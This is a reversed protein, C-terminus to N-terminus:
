ERRKGMIFYVVTPVAIAMMVVLAQFGPAKPTDPEQEKYDVDAYGTYTPDHEIRHGQWGPFSTAYWFPPAIFVTWRAFNWLARPGTYIEQLSESIAWSATCFIDLSFGVQWWVLAIDTPQAQLSLAVADENEKIKTGTAEDILDYVGRHGITFARETGDNVDMSVDEDMLATINGTATFADDQEKVPIGNIFPVVYHVAALGFNENLESPDTEIGWLWLKDVEGITYFTEATITGAEEDILVDYEITLESFRAMYLPFAASAIAEVINSTGIIKAYLNTYRQGFRFHGEGLKEVPIPEVEPVYDEDTLIGGLGFPLVYYYPEHGPDPLGNQGEGTGDYTDDFAMMFAFLAGIFIEVGEPTYYHLGFMQYPLTSVNGEKEFTNFAILFTDVSKYSAYSMSFSFEAGDKEFPIDEATWYEEDFTHGLLDMADQDTFAVPPVANVPSALIAVVILSLIVPLIKRM